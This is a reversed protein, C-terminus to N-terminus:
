NMIKDLDKVIEDQLIKPLNLIRTMHTGKPSIIKKVNKNEGPDPAVATWPDYEGYIMFTNKADSSIFKELNISTQPEFNIKMEEPIFIKSLYEEASEIVLLKKFPKTDYGYYGLERAAQYFFPFTSESGEISFYAPGAVAIFYQFLITNSEKKSPIRDTNGYWQWFSFSFELVCYDYVEELPLRFTLNSAKVFNEFMPFIIERRKLIEKQFDLIKKRDKSTGTKSIFIEHRGDEVAKAVPAVYAVVADMDDPYYMQYLLCTEGGKSIGTSVWKGHYITKLAKFITHHDTAANKTTLYEWNVPDPVSESFYRHEVFVENATLIRCLENIYKDEAAYDGNYGETTYVVPIDFSKHNVFVRQRFTGAAPNDQDLAQEFWVLYKESFFPNTGKEEVKVVGPLKVLMDYLESASLYFSLVTLQITFLLIRLCNM